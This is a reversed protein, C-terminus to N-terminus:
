SSIRMNIGPLDFTLNREWLKFHGRRARFQGGGRRLPREHTGRMQESKCRDNSSCDPHDSIGEMKEHAKKEINLIAVTDRDAEFGCKICKLKRYRNEVLKSGCIPCISSTGRPKIAVAPVGQKECQWDIWHELIRYSLILLSVKHEKPLKRLNEVL